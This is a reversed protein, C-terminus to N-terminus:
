DRQNWMEEYIKRGLRANDAAAGMERGVGRERTPTPASRSGEEVGDRAEM